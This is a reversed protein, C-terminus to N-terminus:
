VPLTFTFTTGEGVTSDAHITGGHCLVFQQALALGIGSGGSKRSRSKEGRYFYQFIHKLDEEAIGRGTDAITTQVFRRGEQEVCQTSVHISCGRDIYRIANNLINYIVQNIRDTDISIDPLDPCLDLSVVLQKEECLPQLMSVARELLLNMNSKTKHLVLENIEALSLDRLDQVLRSLRLVEDEMSLLIKKDTPIVDDVMGELNGQLIALPTRLEHAISAFLHRRMLDNEALHVSMDNFTQALIGVEDHREVPVTQGLKGEQITHVAHTLALLPQTLRRVVVYSVAVSLSLMLLGVWLLSEHISSLYHMEAAGHMMGHRMMGHSPMANYMQLYESFNSSMQNNVLFLLLSITLFLLIFVMGTLRFVLSDYRKM